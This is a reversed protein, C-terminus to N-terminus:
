LVPLHTLSHAEYIHTVYMITMDVAVYRLNLKTTPPMQFRIHVAAM